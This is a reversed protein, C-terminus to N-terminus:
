LEEHDHAAVFEPASARMSGVIDAFELVYKQGIISFEVFPVQVRRVGKLTKLEDLQSMSKDQAARRTKILRLAQVSKKHAMSSKSSKEHELLEQESISIDYVQNIYVDRLKFGIQQM